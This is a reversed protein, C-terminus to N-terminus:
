MQLANRAVLQSLVFLLESKKLLHVPLASILLQYSKNAFVTNCKLWVCVGGVCVTEAAGSVAAEHFSFLFVSFIQNVGLGSFHKLDCVLKLCLLWAFM